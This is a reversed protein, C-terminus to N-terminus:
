LLEEIDDKIKIPSTSPAYRKVVNGSRDILFKTFNWKIKETFLGGQQSTLYQFLPHAEKGNVKVKEFIPFSVGYNRECFAAIENHDGPEQNMFQNSPFGLVTFGQDKYTEYLIQLEEYQPTLGCKSATNVILLVQDKYDSLAKEEGNILRASFEHISM